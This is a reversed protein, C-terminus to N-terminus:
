RDITQQLNQWTEWGYSGRWGWAVAYHRALMQWEEVEDLGELRDVRNREEPSIWKDWIDEITIANAGGSEGGFGADKLRGLQDALSKYRQVTPMVIGRAALNEVMMQGFPDNIGIPEYLVAGLSSIRDGFWKLVDRAVDVELYCLCCESIILTPVDNRLGRLASLERVASLQRLDLPHCIYGAELGSGGDDEVSRLLEWGPEGDVPRGSMDTDGDKDTPAINRAQRIMGDRSLTKNSDVMHWKSACVAPFDFEHYILNRTRNQARLRFYRTDTGAGLSIIQKLQPTSLPNSNALFANILIDLANTRTYTGQSVCNVLRTKLSSHNHSFCVGTSLLCGGQERDM